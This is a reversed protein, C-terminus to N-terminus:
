PKEIVGLRKMVSGCLLISFFSIGVMTDALWVERGCKGSSHRYQHMTQNECLLSLCRPNLDTSWFLDQPVLVRILRHSALTGTAVGTSDARLFFCVIALM